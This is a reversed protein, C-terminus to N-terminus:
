TKKVNTLASYIEHFSQFEGSLMLKFVPLQAKLLTVNVDEAYKESMYKLEDTVDIGPKLANLLLTEMISYAKFGPQDFRQRIANTVLDIAEYYVRRFYEDASSPQHSQGSGVELRKPVNRHRPLSPEPLGHNKALNACHQGEVSSLLTKQLTKSLNDTQILLTAGLNYGFCYQFSEM